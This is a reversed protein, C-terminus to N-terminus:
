GVIIKGEPLVSNATAHGHKISVALGLSVPGVRGVFMTLMLMMKSLPSLHPTLNASLGVTGFASTAEFFADVGNVGPDAASLIGTTVLVVLVAVSTISMARYVAFKDIRRHSFTAEEDGHMVARVTCILVLLTTTKIGGGTGAPSAGIFMLLITLIKTFDFEQGIDVSAFGATRASVSQFFAANLKEWINMGRLTNDNELALFLVTGLALLLGSILLVVRSHFNLPTRPRRMALPKLKTHYIDSIVVFGLGGTVILGAVTLCVLPDGAFPALSSYPSLFGFLDFGANCYASVATFVSIWIGRAGYLPVFRLMLLAAGALECSFTFFLIIRILGNINAASGSTNEAALQLNRLGMKKRMLLSMGTTFTVLGLGGVQILALIIAQGAMNWHTYTDFPVLGTVCTASGATFFADVAPTPQGSRTCFPMSLLLGGAVIVIAFSIVILRAPPAGHLRLRIKELMDRTIGGM